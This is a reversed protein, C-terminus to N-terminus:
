IAKNIILLEPSQQRNSWQLHCIAWEKAPLTQAFEVLLSKELAGEPHGPYLTCSIAGGPKLLFLAEKFSELTTKSSTTLAKNGGPLFGLNYVILAISQRLIEQPFKAHSALHLEARDFLQAEQLRKKTAALAQEQIDLAIVKGQPLLKALALTDHGNGCTADIATDDPKLLEKWFCHAFALHSSFHAFQAYM